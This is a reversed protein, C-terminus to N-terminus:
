TLVELKGLGFVTQKGLHVREAYQLFPLFDQLNEAEYTAYGVLGGLKIAIKQRGSYHSFEKWVLTSDCTKVDQARAILGDYNMETTNEGYVQELATIRRMAAFFLTHFPLEKTLRGQEKLRIPTIYKVTLRSVPQSREAQPQWCSLDHICPIDKLIENELLDNGDSRVKNLQFRGRGKGDIKKGIGTEGLKMVSHVLYPLYQNAKGFLKVSFEVSQGQEIDTGSFSRSSLVYPKPIETLRASVTHPAAIPEFFMAYMCSTKLICTACAANRLVCVLRKIVGGLGSRLVFTFPQKRLLIPTQATILFDYSGLKM